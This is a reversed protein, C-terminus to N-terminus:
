RVGRVKFITIVAFLAVVASVVFLFTYNQGPVSSRSLLPVLLFAPALVPAILTPLSSALNFVGIGKGGELEKNPMVDTMLALDVAFYVAQSLGLLATAILFVAVSSTFAFCLLGVVNILSAIIVFLKRRGLRDSLAGAIGSVVLITLVQVTVSLPILGAAARQDLGLQAQLYFLGFIGVAGVSLFNIFRSIWAWGYDRYKFPNVVFSSFLTSLKFPPLEEKTIHRDQLVFAAITLTVVAIVAPVVFALVLSVTSLSFALVSGLLGALSQSIGLLGSMMGRRKVPVHDPLVALLVALSVTIGVQTLVWGIILLPISPTFAMVLSGILSLVGGGLLWPRRMGFRSTTRDSLRGAIPNALVGFISGITLMIGLVGPRAAPDAILASVKLQLGITVYSLLGIWVGFNALGMVFIFRFGVKIPDAAELMLEPVPPAVLFPATGSPPTPKDLPTTM